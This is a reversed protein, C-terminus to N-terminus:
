NYASLDGNDNLIYVTNDVVLPPLYSSGSIKNTNTIKKNSNSHGASIKLSDNKKHKNATMAVGNGSGCILIGRNADAKSLDNCVMKAFDPYDVSDANSPGRDIM